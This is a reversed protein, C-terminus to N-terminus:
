ARNDSSSPTVRNSTDPCRTETECLPRSITEKSVGLSVILDAMARFESGDPPCRIGPFPPSPVLSPRPFFILSQAFPIPLHLCAPVLCTNLSAPALIPPQATPVNIKWSVKARLATLTTQWHRVARAIIHSSDSHDNTTGHRHKLADTERWATISTHYTYM